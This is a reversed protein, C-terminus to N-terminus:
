SNQKINFLNTTSNLFERHWVCLMEDFGLNMIKSHPIWIMINKQHFGNM